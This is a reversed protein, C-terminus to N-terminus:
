GVVLAVSVGPAQGGDARELGLLDVDGERVHGDADHVGADVGVM